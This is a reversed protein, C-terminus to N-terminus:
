DHSPVSPDLWHMKNVRDEVIMFEDKDVRVMVSKQMRRPLESHSDYGFFPTLNTDEEDLQYFLPMHGMAKINDPHDWEKLFDYEDYKAMWENNLHKLLLVRWSHWPAGEHVRYRRPPFQGNEDYYCFLAIRLQSIRAGSITNRAFAGQKEVFYWIQSGAIGVIVGILLVLSNSKNVRMSGM